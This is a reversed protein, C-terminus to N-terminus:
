RSMRPDSTPDPYQAPCGATAADPRLEFHWSENAYVQCLGYSAGFRSLWDIADYPAIDVAEGSVHLSTEPTAVWRAAEAESGYTGVAQELLHNQYAASRWGSSVQIEIEADAADATAQRLADALAPDLNGIGALNEDLVTAGHPLRGDAETPGGPGVRDRVQGSPGPTTTPM